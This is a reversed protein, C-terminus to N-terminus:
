SFLMAIIWITVFISSYYSIDEEDQDTLENFKARILKQLLEM